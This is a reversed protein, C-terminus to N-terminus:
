ILSKLAGLFKGLGLKYRLMAEQLIFINRTPDQDDVRGMVNGSFDVGKWSFNSRLNTSVAFGRDNSTEVGDNDFFRQDISIHGSTNALINFSLLFGFLFKM